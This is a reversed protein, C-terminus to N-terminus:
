VRSSTMIHSCKPENLRGIACARAQRVHEVSTVLGCPNAIERKWASRGAFDANKRVSWGGWLSLRKFM